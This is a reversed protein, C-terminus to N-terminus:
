CRPFCTSQTADYYEQFYHIALVLADKDDEDKLITNDDFYIAEDSPLGYNAWVAAKASSRTLGRRARLKRPTVPSFPVASSSIKGSVYAILMLWRLPAAPNGGWHISSLDADVVLPAMPLLNRHISDGLEILEEWQSLTDIPGHNCSKTKCWNFTRKIGCIQGNANFSVALLSGHNLAADLAQITIM